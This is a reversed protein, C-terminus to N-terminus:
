GDLFQHVQGERGLHAPFVQALVNPYHMGTAVVVVDCDQHADRLYQRAHTVFKGTRHQKDELRRLFTCGVAGHAASFQHQCLASEVIRPGIHHKSQVNKGERGAGDGGARAAQHCRRVAVLDGHSTFLGVPSHWPGANVRHDGGTLYHEPQLGNDRALEIGGEGGGDDGHALDVATHAAVNNRFGHVQYAGNAGEIRIRAQVNVVAHM